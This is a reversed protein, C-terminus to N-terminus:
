RRKASGRRPSPADDTLGKDKLYDPEDLRDGADRERWNDIIEDEADYEQIARVVLWDRAQLTRAILLHGVLFLALVVSVILRDAFFNNEFGVGRAAYSAYWNGWVAFQIGLSLVAHLILETRRRHYREIHNLASLLDRKAKTHSM